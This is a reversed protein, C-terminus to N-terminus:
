KLQEDDIEIILSAVSRRPNPSRGSHSWSSWGRADATRRMESRLASWSFIAEPSSLRCVDGVEFGRM